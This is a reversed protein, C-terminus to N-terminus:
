RSGHEGRRESLWDRLMDAARERVMTGWITAGRESDLEAQWEAALRFAEVVQEPGREHKIDHGSASDWKEVGDAWAHQRKTRLQVEVLVDNRLVRLHLARYGGPRPNKNYDDESDVTVSRAHQDIRDRVAYVGALDPLVARCGGIDEMSALRTKSRVLKAIIQAERKFRESVLGSVDEIGCATRVVSRLTMATSSSPRRFQSRWAGLVAMEEDLDVDFGARGEAIYRLRDGAKNARKKSPIADSM